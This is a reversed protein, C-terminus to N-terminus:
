RKREAYREIIGAKFTEFRPDNEAKRKLHEDNIRRQPQTDQHAIAAMREAEELMLNRKSAPQGTDFIDKKPLFFIIKLLKCRDEM